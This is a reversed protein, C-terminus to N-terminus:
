VIDVQDFILEEMTVVEAEITEVDEDTEESGSSNWVDSSDESDSTNTSSAAPQQLPINMCGQCECGPGCHNGKKRCRCRNSSCGKRCTCGKILFDVTGQIEEQVKPDEWDISYTGDSNHLWGYSEPSPLTSYMDEEPSSQWLQVSWCTRLWHRWLSTYSPVREEETTIREATVKRIDQLWKQHIEEHSETSSYSNFLQIPTSYSYLSTFAAIHKKFYATGVLRVFALFSHSSSQVEHLNGPMQEGTIFESHQYFINLFTAKGLSKFYSIYDCGTCVFLTQFTNALKDRNLSALDPDSSLAKVFNNLHLFKQEHAHPVNLQIIYEKDTKGVLPLGINYVDTDPSYILIQSSISQTAHRWIRFDAEEANSRYEPSPEPVVGTGPYITWVCEEGDGSFCGAVLLKQGHRLLQGGTQLYALGIAKTISRKCQRCQIYQRWGSPIPTSPTFEVHQHTKTTGTVTTNVDRRGQEFIKPNFEQQNPM